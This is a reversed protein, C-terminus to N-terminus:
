QQQNEEHKLLQDAKRKALTALWQISRRLRQGPSSEPSTQDNKNDEQVPGAPPTMKLRGYKFPNNNSEFIEECMQDEIKLSWQAMQVDEFPCWKREEDRSSFLHDVANVLDEFDSKKIAIM